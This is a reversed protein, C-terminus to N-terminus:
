FASSRRRMCFRLVCGSALNLAFLFCFEMEFSPVPVYIGGTHTHREHRNMPPMHKSLRHVRAETSRRSSGVGNAQSCVNDVVYSLPVRHSDSRSRRKSM